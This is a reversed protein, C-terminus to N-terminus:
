FEYQTVFIFLKAVASGAFITNHYIEMSLDLEIEQPGPISRTLVLVAQSQSPRRLAFYSETARPIGPPARADVLAMSFRVISGPLHTGKMTFLELQGSSPIPLLSVFTIFNFSYHSPSRFCALDDSPCYRSTRTCRNKRNPDQHYGQPCNIRNCRYSGRTNQCMENPDRCVRGAECEDIDQCTRGDIGLRYGVPCRCSYSGPTNDCLGVCLNNDKFETCEDIDTCSRNDSNLRFGPQCTCRYSGWANVCSHQCIRPSQECENIDQCITGDDSTEFGSDCICKFSGVTNECRGNAGCLNGNYISCEDIDICDRNSPAIAHGPPCTCVYGGQRNDCTQGAGCEHTGDACENVDICHSTVPDLSYGAGCIVRSVCQYSGLTNVCRQLPSRACPNTPGYKCEDIDICQGSAGPEFGRPCNIDPQIRSGIVPVNTIKETTMPTTTLLSTPIRSTTSKIIKPTTRRASTVTTTTTTTMIAPRSTWTQGRPNKDCRYSGLTNRCHYGGSCDHTGLVCEDDDECIETAANLTYGTGCPLFRVCNYSGLTNDCRQTPLCDNELLQCENIDVCAQTLNDRRFGTRCNCTYSGVTNICEENSSCADEIELCEDIDKCGRNRIYKFGSECKRSNDPSTTSQLENVVQTTSETIPTPLRACSYGGPQNYCVEDGCSDLREACEDVDECQRTRSDYRYGSPCAPRRRHPNILVPPRECKYSGPINVCSESLRIDCPTKTGSNCEDIDECTRTILSYKYGSMCDPLRTVCEYTGQRNVCYQHLNLPCNHLKDACEDIDVCTGNFARRYGPSCSQIKDCIFSGNINRCIHTNESCNHRGLLCEDVDKCQKTSRDFYWGAICLPSCDYGGPHNICREHDQCGPGESCEDIDICTTNNWRFGAKCAVRLSAPASDLKFEKMTDSIKYGNHSKTETKYQDSNAIENENTENDESNDDDDEDNIDENDLIPSRCRYQGPLNICISKIGPCPNELERCENIDVCIGLNRSFTFGKRCQVDCEYAGDTNRCEEVEPLCGHLGEACEDVDQCTKNKVDFKFGAPCIKPSTLEHCSFSGQTNVCLHTGNPCPLQNDIACEDIDICIKLKKNWQYGPPCIEKLKKRKEQLKVQLEHNKSICAYSGVVNKCKDGAFCPNDECEDVDDCVRAAANYKYGPPCRPKRKNQTEERPTTISTMMMTTTRVTSVNIEASEQVCSHGDKALIFGPDCQCKVATGTDTCRHECPNDSECRNIKTDTRCTVGDEMLSKGEPCDCYYSGPTPICIDSCLLGKMLECIDDLGPTPPGDVTSTSASSSTSNTSSSLTTSTSAAATTSTIDNDDTSSTYSITSPMPSSSSTEYCCELFAPDWPKGFSFSKFVCGQSLSGTLIGLKCGECCDRQYENSNIKNNNEVCALGARANKKGKECHKEHYARVCCIDVAELCLGQELSPIGEVPGTFKECRLEEAAWDSGLKCCKNFQDEMRSDAANEQHISFLFAVLIIRRLTM